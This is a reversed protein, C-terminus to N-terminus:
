NSKQWLADMIWGDLIVDGHFVYPKWSDKWDREDKQLTHLAWHVRAWETTRNWNKLLWPQLRKRLRAKVKYLKDSDPAKEGYAEKLDTEGHLFCVFVDYIPWITYIEANIHHILLALRAIWIICSVSWTSHITNSTIKCPPGEDWQFFNPMLKIDWNNSKSQLSILDRLAFPLNDNKLYHGNLFLRVIDWVTSLNSVLRFLWIDWYINRM